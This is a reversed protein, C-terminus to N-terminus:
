EKNEEATRVEILYCAELLKHLLIYIRLLSPIPRRGFEYFNFPSLAHHLIDNLCTKWKEKTYFKKVKHLVAYPNIYETLDLHRAFFHTPNNDVYRGQYVDYNSVILRSENSNLVAKKNVRKNNAVQFGAELLSEFKEIFLILDSPCSKRGGNWIKKSEAAKIFSTLRLAAFPLMYADFFSNIGYYGENIHKM